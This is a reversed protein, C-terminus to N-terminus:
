RFIVSKTLGLFGTPWKRLAAAAAGAQAGRESQTRHARSVSLISAEHVVGVTSRHGGSDDLLVVHFLQFVTGPFSYDVCKSLYFLIFVKM